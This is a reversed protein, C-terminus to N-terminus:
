VRLLRLEEAYETIGDESPTELIVAVGRAVMDHALAKLVEVAIHGKGLNAHRDKRAGCAFLSDNLHVVKLMQISLICDFSKMLANYAAVSDLNYGAAFVHCTDLCVGIRKQVASDCADYLARIEEFSSGVSSGQGAMTELLIMCDGPADALIASLERGVQAIGAAAGAGTHAGPHLVLYPISLAYCRELEHKLSAVSKHRVADSSAALNILYGAHAVVVEVSSKKWAVDFAAIQEEELPKGFYSQNSKTFIQVAKAGVRAAREFVTALGGATSLHAGFLDKKIM